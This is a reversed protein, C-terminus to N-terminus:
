SKKHYLINVRLIWEYNQRTHTLSHEHKKWKRADQNAGRSFHICMLIIGDIKKVVGINWYTNLYVINKMANKKKM